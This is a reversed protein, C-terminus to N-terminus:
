YILSLGCLCSFDYVKYSDISSKRSTYILCIGDRWGGTVYKWTGHATHPLAHKDSQECTDCNYPKEGVMNERIRSEARILWM